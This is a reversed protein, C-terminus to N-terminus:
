TGSQDINRTGGIGQWGLAARLMELRQGWQWAPSLIRKHFGLVTLVNQLM